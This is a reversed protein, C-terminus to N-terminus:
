RVVDVVALANDGQLVVYARGNSVWLVDIPLSGVTVDDVVIMRDTEILSVSASGSNAVMVYRGDPSVDLGLPDTGVPIERRVFGPDLDLAVVKNNGASIYATREDPGLAIFSAGPLTLLTDVVAFVSPNFEISYVKGRDYGVVYARPPFRNRTMALGAPRDDLVITRRAYDFDRDFLTVLRPDFATAVVFRGDSSVKVLNASQGVLVSDALGGTRSDLILVNSGRVDAAYIESGGPNVAIGLTSKGMYLNQIVQGDVSRRLTIWGSDLDGLLFTGAFPGPALLSPSTGITVIRGRVDLRPPRALSPPPDAASWLGLAVAFLAVAM